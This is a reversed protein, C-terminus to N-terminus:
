LTESDIDNELEAIDKNLQMLERFREYQKSNRDLLEELCDKEKKLLAKLRTVAGNATSKDRYSDLLAKVGLLQEFSQGENMAVLDAKRQKLAKLRQELVENIM